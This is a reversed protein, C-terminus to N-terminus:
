PRRITDAPAIAGCFGSAVTLLSRRRFDGRLIPGPIPATSASSDFLAPEALFIKLCIISALM